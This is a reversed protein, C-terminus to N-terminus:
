LGRRGFVMTRNDNRNRSGWAFCTYATFSLRAAIPKSCKDPLKRLRFNMQAPASHTISISTDRRVWEMTGRTSLQM